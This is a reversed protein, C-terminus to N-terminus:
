KLKKRLIQLILLREGFVSVMEMGEMAMRLQFTHRKMIIIRM